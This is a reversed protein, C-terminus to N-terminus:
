RHAATASSPVTDTLPSSARSTVPDTPSGPARRVTFLRKATAIQFAIKTSSRKPKDPHMRVPTLAL